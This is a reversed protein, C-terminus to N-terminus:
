NEGKSVPAPSAEEKAVEAAQEAAPAEATEAQATVVQETAPMAQEQGAAPVVM